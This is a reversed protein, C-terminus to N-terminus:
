NNQAILQRLYTMPLTLEPSPASLAIGRAVTDIFHVCNRNYVSYEDIYDHEARINQVVYAYMEKSCGVALTLDLLRVSQLTEAVVHGPVKGFLLGKSREKPYLGYAEFSHWKKSVTDRRASIVMAHGLPGDEMASFLIWFNGKPTWGRNIRKFM